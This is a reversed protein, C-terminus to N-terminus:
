VMLSSTNNKLRLGSEKGCVKEREGIGRYLEQTTSKWPQKLKYKTIIM